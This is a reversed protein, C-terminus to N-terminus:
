QELWSSSFNLSSALCVKEEFKSKSVGSRGVRTLAPQVTFVMSCAMFVGTRSSCEEYAGSMAAPNSGTVGTWTGSPTASSTSVSKM